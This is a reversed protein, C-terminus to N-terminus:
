RAFLRRSKTAIKFQLFMMIYKGFANLVYDAALIVLIFLLKNLL